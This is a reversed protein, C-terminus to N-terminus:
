HGQLETDPGETTGQLRPDLRNAEGQLWPGGSPPPLDLVIVICAAAEVVLREPAIVLAETGVSEVSLTAM